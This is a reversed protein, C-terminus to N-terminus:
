AQSDSPSPRLRSGIRSLQGSSDPRQRLRRYLDPAVVYNLPPLACKRVDFVLIHRASTGVVLRGAAASM